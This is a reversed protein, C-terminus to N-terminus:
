FPLDQEPPEEGPEREAALAARGPAPPLRFQPNLREQEEDVIRGGARIRFRITRGTAEGGRVRHKGVTACMLDPELLERVDGQGAAVAKVQAATVDAKRQRHLMLIVSAEEELAGTQKLASIPPPMFDALPSRDQGRNVQAALVPNLDHEMAVAKFAQVAQTMEQTKNSHDKPIWRNVHDVIVIEYRARVAYEKLARGVTQGNLYPVDVFLGVDANAIQWRLNEEVKDRAGEELRHWANELVDKVPYSLNLAAWVRRMAAAKIETTIYLVPWGNRVLDDFINLLFTTKGNGPRAAVVWMDGPLFPGVVNHATTFNSLAPLKSWDLRNMRFSEVHQAEALALPTPIQVVDPRGEQGATM